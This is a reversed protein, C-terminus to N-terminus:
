WGLQSVSLRRARSLQAWVAGELMQSVIDCVTSMIAQTWTATLLRRKSLQREYWHACRVAPGRSALPVEHTHTSTADLKSYRPGKMHTDDIKAATIHRVLRAM